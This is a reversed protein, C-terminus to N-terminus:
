GVEWRCIEYPKVNDNGVDLLHSLHPDSLPLPVCHILQAGRNNCPQIEPSTRNMAKGSAKQAVKPLDSQRDTGRNGM